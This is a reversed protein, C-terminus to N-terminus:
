ATSQSSRTTRPEEFRRNALSAPLVQYLTTAEAFGKLEFEGVREVRPVGLDLMVPEIELAVEETVLIQGGHAASAVRAARNVTPGFYDMRGTLPNPVCEAEGVHMGMRVRLGQLLPVGEASTLTASERRRSLGDPWPAAMLREQVTLAWHVADAPSRFAVMFADGDTKVEYGRCEALTSRLTRDHIELADRMVRYSSQWLSTSGEVDTFVLCVRERPALYADGSAPASTIRARYDRRLRYHARGALFFGAFVLYPVPTAVPLFLDATRVLVVAAVLYLALVAGFVGLVTGFSRQLLWGSFAISLLLLAGFALWLPVVRPARGGLLTRIAHGHVLGGSTERSIPTPERDVSGAEVYVLVLKGAVLERLEAERAADLIAELPLRPPGGAAGAAADKGPVFDLLSEGGHVAFRRGAGLDLTRGDFRFSSRAQEDHQLVAALPLSPVLHAIGDVAHVPAHTRLRGDPQSYLQVHGLRSARRAFPEIPAAVRLPPKAPTAEAFTDLVSRELLAPDPPAQTLGRPPMALVAGDLAEALAADVAPDADPAGFLLDVVVTKAGLARVRAIVEATRTRPWPWRGLARTADEDIPALLVTEPWPSAARLRLQQDYAIRALPSSVGLLELALALLAAGAISRLASQALRRTLGSVDHSM